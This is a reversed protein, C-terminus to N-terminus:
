AWGMGQERAMDTFTEIQAHTLSVVADEDAGDYFRRYWQSTLAMTHELDLSVSWGLLQRAKETDLRLLQNETYSAEATIAPDIGWAAALM